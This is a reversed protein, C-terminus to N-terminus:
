NQCLKLDRQMKFVKMDGLSQQVQFSMGSVHLHVNFVFVFCKDGHRTM